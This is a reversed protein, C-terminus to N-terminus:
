SSIRIMCGYPYKIARNYLMRPMRNRKPIYYLAITIFGASYQLCFVTEKKVILIRDSECIVWKIVLTYDGVAGKLDVVTIFPMSYVVGEVAVYGHPLYAAYIILTATKIIGIRKGLIM